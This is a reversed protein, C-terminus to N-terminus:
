RKRISDVNDDSRGSTKSRELIRKELEAEPCDYVIAAVLASSEGMADEWGDLNDDSRPFGDILFIPPTATTVSSTNNDCVDDMARKLLGLTVAVPVIKGAVIYSEILEGDEGGKTRAERLLDGASLHWVYEGPSPYNDLVLSSQTGKGAGPGGLVFITRYVRRRRDDDSDRGVGYDYYDIGGFSRPVLNPYYSPLIGDDDTDDSPNNNSEANNSADAAAELRPALPTPSSTTARPVRGVFAAVSSDNGVICFLLLACATAVLQCSCPLLRRHLM